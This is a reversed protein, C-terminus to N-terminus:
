VVYTFHKGKCTKYRGKLHASISSPHVNLYESAEKVSNFIQGSEICIVKKKHGENSKKFGNLKKEEITKKRKEITEKTQKKGLNYNRLKQKTEETMIRKPKVSTMREIRWRKEEESLGKWHEKNKKM